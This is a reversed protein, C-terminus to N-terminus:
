LDKQYTKLEQNLLMLQKKSGGSILALADISLGPGVEISDYEMPPAYDIKTFGYKEPSKAIIIAAILKPVYRKTELRLYRKEALTWFDKTKFRKIGYRIKGPGGNYAAVALHWDGFQQYLDALYAAAARTSKLANRREDVYRDIRLNYDRGTGKMFQWLGVARARSYARQNFGSEIMALYVLDRPLGARDLEEHILPLYRTSRALWRSFYKRQKGQFLKLYM